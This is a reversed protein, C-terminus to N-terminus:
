KVRYTRKDAANILLTGIGDTKYIAIEKLINRVKVSLAVDSTYKGHALRLSIDVSLPNVYYTESKEDGEGESRLCKDNISIDLDSVWESILNGYATASDYSNSIYLRHESSDYTIIRETTISDEDALRNDSETVSGTYIVIDEGAEVIVLSKAGMIAESLQNRVIQLENQIDIDDNESKFMNTGQVLLFSIMLLVIGSIGITVLLEILTFGKNNM